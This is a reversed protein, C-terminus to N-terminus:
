GHEHRSRWENIQMLAIAPLVPTIPSASYDRHDRTVISTAGCAIAAAGQVADEYDTINLELAHKLLTADVPVVDLVELLSRIGERAVNSGAAKRILYHVTTVAHASVFGRARGARLAEFLLVGEHSWPRRDMMVDLIINTDILFHPTDAHSM